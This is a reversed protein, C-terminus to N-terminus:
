VAEGCSVYDPRQWHLPQPLRRHLGIFDALQAKEADALFDPDLMTAAFAKRLIELREPPIGPPATLSKQFQFVALWIDFWVQKKIRSVIVCRCCILLKLTKARAKCLLRFLASM